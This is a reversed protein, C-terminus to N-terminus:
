IICVDKVELHLFEKFEYNIRDYLYREQIKTKYYIMIWRNIKKITQYAQGIM